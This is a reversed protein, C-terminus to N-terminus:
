VAHRAGRSHTRALAPKVKIDLPLWDRLAATVESAEFDPRNWLALYQIVGRWATTVLSEDVVTSPHRGRYRPDHLRRNLESFLLQLFLRQGHAKSVLMELQAPLAETRDLVAWYREALARHDQRDYGAVELTAQPTLHRLMTGIAGQQLAGTTFLAVVIGAEAIRAVAAAFEPFHWVTAHHSNLGVVALAGTHLQALLQLAHELYSEKRRLGKSELELLSSGLVADIAGLIAFYFARETPRSPMRVILLPVQLIRVPTEIPCGGRDYELVSDHQLVPGLLSRLAYVLKDAQMSQPASVVWIRRDPAANIQTLLAASDFQACYVARTRHQNVQVLCNGKAQTQAEIEDLLHLAIEVDAGTPLFVARLALEIGLRRTRAVPQAPDPALCHARSLRDVFKALSAPAPPLAQVLFSGTGTSSKVHKISM